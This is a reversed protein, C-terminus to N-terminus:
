AVTLVTIATPNAYVLTDITSDTHLTKISNALAVRCAFNTDAAMTFSFTKDGDIIQMATANGTAQSVVAQSSLPLRATFAGNNAGNAAIAITLEKYCAM